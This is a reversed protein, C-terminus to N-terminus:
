GRDSSQALASPQDSDDHNTPQNPTTDPENAQANPGSETNPSPSSWRRSKAQTTQATSQEGFVRQRFITNTRKLFKGADTKHHPRGDLKAALTLSIANPVDIVGRVPMQKAKMTVSGDASRLDEFIGYVQYRTFGSKPDDGLKRLWLNAANAILRHGGLTVDVDKWLLIRHTQGDEWVWGAQAAISIDGVVAEIPFTISDFSQTREPEILTKAHNPVSIESGIATSTGAIAVLIGLGFSLGLRQGLRQGPGVRDQSTRRRQAM